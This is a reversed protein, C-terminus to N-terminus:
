PKPESTPRFRNALEQVYGLTLLSGAQIQTPQLLSNFGESQVVNNGMTMATMGGCKQSHMALPPDGPLQTIQGKHHKERLESTLEMLTATEEHLEEM